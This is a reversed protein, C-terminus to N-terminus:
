IGGASEGLFAEASAVPQGERYGVFLHVPSDERLVARETLEYFRIVHQDPPTWNAAVVSSYHALQERSTVRVITLGAPVPQPRFQDPTLAMGIESESSRLGRAQLLDAAPANPGCWVAFPLDAPRFVNMAEDLEAATTQGCCYIVNFTDCPLGSSAAVCGPRELVTMGPTARHLWSFHGVLNAEMGDLTEARSTAEAM